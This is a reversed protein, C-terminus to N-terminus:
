CSYKWRFQELASYFFGVSGEYRPIGVLSAKVEADRAYIGSGLKPAPGRPLPIPQGPLVLDSAMSFSGKFPLNFRGCFNPSNNTCIADLHYDRRVSFRSEVRTGFYGTKGGEEKEM